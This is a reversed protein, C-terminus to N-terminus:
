PRGEVWSIINSNNPAFYYSYGDPIIALFSTNWSGTLGFSALRQDTGSKDRILFGFGAYKSPDANSASISVPMAKGTSNVYVVGPSRSATVDRPPQDIGIIQNTHAADGTRDSPFSTYGASEGKTRAIGSGGSAARYFWLREDPYNNHQYVLTDFTNNGLSRKKDVESQLAYDGAPQYDGKPQYKEPLGLNGPICGYGSLDTIIGGNCCVHPFVIATM